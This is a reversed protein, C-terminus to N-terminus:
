APEDDDDLPVARHQDVIDAVSGEAPREALDDVDDDLEDLEDDVLRDGDVDTDRPDIDDSPM